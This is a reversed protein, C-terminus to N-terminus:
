NGVAINIRDKINAFIGMQTKSAGAGREYGTPDFQSIPSLLSTSTSRLSISSGNVDIASRNDWGHLIIAISKFKSALSGEASALTIKGSAPDYSITRKYFAGSEYDFTKGDDEYYVFTNPTNGKYIHLMLTDSPAISTSQVVTQM